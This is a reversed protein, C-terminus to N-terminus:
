SVQVNPMAKSQEETLRNVIFYLKKPPDTTTKLEAVDGDEANPIQTMDVVVDENIRSPEHSWAVLAIPPGHLRTDPEDGEKVEDMMVAPVYGSPRIIGRAAM